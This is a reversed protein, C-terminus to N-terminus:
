VNFPFRKTLLSQSSLAPPSIQSGTASSTKTNWKVPMLLMPWTQVTTRFIAVSLLTPIPLLQFALCLRSSWFTSYHRSCIYKFIASLSLLHNLRRLVVKFFTGWINYDNSTLLAVCIHGSPISSHNSAQLQLLVTNLLVLPCHFQLDPGTWSNKYYHQLYKKSSSDNWTLM